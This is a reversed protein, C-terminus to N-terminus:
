TATNYPTMIGNPVHAIITRGKTPKTSVRFANGRRGNEPHGATYKYHLQTAQQKKRKVKRVYLIPIITSTTVVPGDPAM